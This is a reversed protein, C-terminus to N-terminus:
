EEDLAAVLVALRHAVLPQDVLHEGQEHSPRLRGRGREGPHDPVEEMMGRPDRLEAPLDRVTGPPRRPPASSAGWGGRRSYRSATMLSDIRRVGTAVKTARLSWAGARIPPRTRGAPVLTPAFM